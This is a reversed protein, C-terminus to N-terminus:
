PDMGYPGYLYPIYRPGLFTGMYNSAEPQQRTLGIIFISTALVEKPNIISRMM